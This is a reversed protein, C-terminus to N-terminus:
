QHGREYNAIVAENTIGFFRRSMHALFISTAVGNTQTAIITANTETWPAGTVGSNVKGWELKCDVLQSTGTIRTITISSRICTNSVTQLGTDLINTQSGYGLQIQNTTTIANVFRDHFRVTITDGINTLAHAPLTYSGVNTPNLTGSHNTYATFDNFARGGVAVNSATVGLRAFINSGVFNSVGSFTSGHYVSLVPVYIDDTTVWANLNTGFDDAFMSVMYRFGPRVLVDYNGNTTWNLWRIHTGSATLFTVRNSYAGAGLGRFPMILSSSNIVNSLNFTLNTGVANTIPRYAATSTMDINNTLATATVGNSGNFNLPTYLIQDTITLNDRAVIAGLDATNGAPQNIDAAVTVAGEFRADSGNTFASAVYLSDLFQIARTDNNTVANAAAGGSSSSSSGGGPYDIVQAIVGVAVFLLVVIFRKM